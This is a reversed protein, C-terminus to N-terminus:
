TANKIEEILKNKGIGTIKYVGSYEISNENCLNIAKELDSPIFKVCIGCDAKIERPVPILEVKFYDKLTKECFIARHTSDFSLIIYPENM